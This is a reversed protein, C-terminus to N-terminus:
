VASANSMLRTFRADSAFPAAADRAAAEELQKQRQEFRTLAAADGAVAGSADLALNYLPDVPLSQAAAAPRAQLFYFSAGSGLLVLAAVALLLALGTPPRLPPAPASM